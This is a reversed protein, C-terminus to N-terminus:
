AQVLPRPFPQAPQAPRAPYSRVMPTLPVPTGTTDTVVNHGHQSFREELAELRSRLIQVVLTLEENTLPTEDKM